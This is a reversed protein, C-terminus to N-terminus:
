CDPGGVPRVCMTAVRKRETYDPAGVSNNDPCNAGSGNCAVSSITYITKVIGQGNADVGDTANFPTCLITVLFGTDAQFDALTKPIPASSCPNTGYRIQYMTYEVGARAAQNARAVLVADNATAQQATTMRLMAAALGAVVVLLVVAAIYAFGGQRRPKVPRTRM